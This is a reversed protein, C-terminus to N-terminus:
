LIHSSTYFPAESQVILREELYLRLVKMLYLKLNM